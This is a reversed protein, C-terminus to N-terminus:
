TDQTAPGPRKTLRYSKGKIAIVVAHHLFRDLIATAIAADGLLKGWDEIPRNSTVITSAKKYRRMFIELLNQAAGPPTRNLGLDDIIILPVQCIEQIMVKREDLATAEALGELLDLASRYLVPYGAHIARIGLAIALHSKGVGPPGQLHIGQGKTMFRATALDFLQRKNISTNFSWDFDELTKLAPFGAKKIRRALLRDRRTNLEDEVLLELFERHSLSAAIAEQNRVELTAAMGSLRLHRLRSDLQHNM